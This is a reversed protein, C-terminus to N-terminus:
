AAFRNAAPGFYDLYRPSIDAVPLTVFVDTTGFRDDVVASEGFRAGVRLYAKVLPPLARLAGKEDLSGPASRDMAVHREPRARVRWEPTALANRYLFALQAALADPDTGELSACGFMADIRHRRVYAWIGAWLLEVTKRSRYPGLVCSRGLELFRRGAHRALLPAIDFEGASYFGGNREAVDHRLLRYTGVVRPKAARFPKPAVDHDLVLLHDCIADFPDVDRRQLAALPAPVADGDEFFVRYRLRQARRVERPGAALRVELRGLRGLSAPEPPVPRAAPTPVNGPVAPGPVRRPLEGCLSRLM